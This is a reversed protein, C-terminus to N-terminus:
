FLTPILFPVGLTPLPAWLCSLSPLLPSVPLPHSAHSAKATVINTWLPCYILLLPILSIAPHIQLSKFLQFIFCGVEETVQLAPSLLSERSSSSSIHHTWSFHFLNRTSDASSVPALPIPNMVSSLSRPGLLDCLMDGTSSIIALFRQSTSVDSRERGENDQIERYGSNRM